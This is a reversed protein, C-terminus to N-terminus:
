KAVVVAGSKTESGGDLYTVTVRAVYPGDGVTRGEDDRLNWPLEYRDGPQNAVLTRVRRGGLEYLDLRVSRGARALNVDFVDNARFREPAHLGLPEEYLITVSASRASHNGSREVAEFTFQNAGLTLSVLTSWNPATVRAVLAGGRFVHVSDAGLATGTFTGTNRTTRAPPTTVVLPIAPPERDLVFRSFVRRGPVPAGSVDASEAQAFFYWSGSGMETGTSDRGDWPFLHEGEAAPANHLTRIWQLSDALRDGILIPVAARVQVILRTTAADLSVSARVTDLVGDANPSFEFPV